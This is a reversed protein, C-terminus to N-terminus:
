RTAVPPVVLVVEVVLLGARVITVAMPGQVLRVAVPAKVVSLSSVVAAAAQARAGKAAEAVVRPAVAVLVRPMVLAKRSAASKALGVVPAGAVRGAFRVTSDALSAARASARLVQAVVQVARKVAAVGGEPVVGVSVKVAASLMAWLGPLFTAAM